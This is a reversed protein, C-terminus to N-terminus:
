EAATTRVKLFEIMEDGRTTPLMCAFDECVYVTAKGGIRSFDRTYPAIRDLEGEHEAGDRLLIVKSPIFERNLRGLLTKTDEADRDGVVVIEYSPGLWFDASSLLQTFNTPSDKVLTAYSSLLGSAHKELATDASIRSLRLLNHVAISNGSPVAGDFLEKRRVLVTEGDEPTLFFASGERDWFRSLLTSNLEFAAFLYRTDFGAEYLEILGWILFAYDNLQGFVAAEGDRYMHLLMGESSIMTNLIFEAARVAADIYSQEGLVAGAKAFAAIMLGNWDSLIKDDTLPRERLKRAELLKAKIEELRLSLKIEPIDLDQSLQTLTKTMHLINEGTRMKSVTDSFNGEETINYAAEAIRRDRRRLTKKVERATWKYYDGEIGGTDADQATYFGGDPATMERLVFNLTDEVTKRYDTNGTAQFAETYTISLLAQDYLMKEFHPVLWERDTSYRHFGHGVHDYIGGMRMHKLTNEVIELAKENGTNKWVRLLFSLHNPSPLKPATGFGGYEPDYISALKEFADSLVKEDIKGSMVGYMKEINSLANTIKKASELVQDRQDEWVKKIVPILEVMGTTGFRTEDPIYTAAFFPKKEPTLIITLPWGSVGAILQAVSMYLSDIDPREERDVKVPVFTENILKAIAPNEFSEDEMVHCWHCSSYGISLFVPKDEAKAKAFAAPGWPYWDVPDDAHKQLYPSKENQLKNASFTENAAFFVCASLFACMLSAIVRKM